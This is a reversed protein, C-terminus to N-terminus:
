SKVGKLKTELKVAHKQKKTTKKKTKQRTPSSLLRQMNENKVFTCRQCKPQEQLQGSGQKTGVTQSLYVCLRESLPPSAFQVLRRAVNPANKLSCRFQLPTAAASTKSNSKKKIM